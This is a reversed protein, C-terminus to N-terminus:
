DGGNNNLFRARAFLDRAVYHDCLRVNNNSPVIACRIRESKLEVGDLIAQDDNFNLVERDETSKAWRPELSCYVTEIGSPLFVDLVLRRSIDRQVFSWDLIVLDFTHESLQQQIAEESVATVAAHGARNLIRAAIMAVDRDDHAILVKQKALRPEQPAFKESQFSSVGKQRDSYPLSVLYFALVLTRKIPVVM